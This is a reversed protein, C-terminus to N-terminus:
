PRSHRENKSIRRKRKEDVMRAAELSRLGEAIRPLQRNTRADHSRLNLIRGGIAQAEAYDRQALSEEMKLHLDNIVREQEYSWNTWIALGISLAVGAVVAATRVQRKHHSLLRGLREVATEQYVSVAGGAVFARLDRALEEVTQYREPREFAMARHVIAVLARPLPPCDRRADLRTWMGHSVQHM